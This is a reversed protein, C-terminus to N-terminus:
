FGVDEPNNIIDQITTTASLTKRKKQVARESRPVVKRFKWPVFGCEENNRLNLCPKGLIILGGTDAIGDTIYLVGKIPLGNPKSNVVEKTNRGFGEFNEICVAKDGIKWM